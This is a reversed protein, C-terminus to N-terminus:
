RPRDREVGTTSSEVPAGATDAGAARLLAVVDEHGGRIAESLATAGDKTAAHVDAKAALFVRVLEVNGMRAARILPTDLDDRHRVDVDAGLRVLAAAMAPDRVDLLPADGFTDRANPNAGQRVVQELEAVDGHQIALRIASAQDADPERAYRTESLYFAAALIAHSVAFFVFGLTAQSRATGVTRKRVQDPTGPWLRNLTAGAPVLARKGHDYRGLACVQQGVEVVRENITRQEFPIPDDSMRFDKRVAGDADALADDFESFIRLAGLGQMREFPASAAYERARIAVERGPTGSQAFEDLLPFGLLRVGGQPTEIVSAAMAFGALDTQKGDTRGKAPPLRQVVEYEYAVCPRGSFPSTVPVGLPRIPGAVLALTGDVLPEKRDARRFAATDRRAWALNGLSGLGMAGFLSGLGAAFLNGPWEFSRTFFWFYLAFLAGFLVLILTCGRRMM